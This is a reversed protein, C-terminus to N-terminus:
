EDNGEDTLLLNTSPPNLKFQKVAMESVEALFEEVNTENGAVQALVDTSQTTKVKDKELKLPVAKIELDKTNIGLAKARQEIEAFAAKVKEDQGSIRVILDENEM